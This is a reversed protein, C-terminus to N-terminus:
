KRSLTMVSRAPLDFRVPGGAASLTTGEKFHESETTTRSVWVGGELGGLTAERAAGMNVVHVTRANGARFATVLVGPDSSASEVAESKQPTLDTFHKMIWFRATPEVKGGAAVRALGYDSTFEWYQTGQPRAYLILEQMMQAERLGYHYSQYVGNRWAFADVGVETVLLPLGLWEGVDGWARYQEPTAGGWSHFAVADVYQMAEPDAAAALVYEHTGRPGTADGLLMRTKFGNKKLYGGIKKLAERHEEPEFLVYVGINAENFSFMNPEAGYHDRAYKLYSGILELVNDWQEPAIKRRHTSRPKENPDTYFREPLWWISSIYPIGKQQLTRMVEFDRRLRPGPNPRERDWDLLKMETRAWASKLNELTYAAVPSDNGFCYSGGFGDFQFRPKGADVTLTVPGPKPAGSLALSIEMAARAGRALTGKHFSVRVQYGRGSREWRDVIAAPYAKDFGAALTWPKGTLKLGSAEGRFFAPDLQKVSPIEMEKDGANLRGGAFLPRPLDVIFDLSALELASDASVAARFKVGAGSEDAAIEFRGRGGDPLEVPGSWALRGAERAIPSRELHALVPLRRGSPLVAALQTRVDVEHGDQILALLRGSSDYAAKEAAAAPLLTVLLCLVAIRM